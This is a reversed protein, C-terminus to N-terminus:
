QEPLLRAVHRAVSIEPETLIEGNTGRYMLKATTDYVHPLGLLHGIEHAVTRYTNVSTRDKVVFSRSQYFTVGNADITSVFYANIASDDSPTGAGSFLRNIFNSYDVSVQEVSKVNIQVNAPAWIRNAEDFLARVNDESRASSYRNNEDLIIYATVDIRIINNVDEADGAVPSLLTLILAIGLLAGTSIWCYLCM